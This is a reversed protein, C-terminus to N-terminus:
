RVEVLSLSMRGHQGSTFTQEFTPGAFQVELSAPEGDPEYNMPLIPGNAEIWKARLADMVASPVANWVLVFERLHRDLKQRVRVCGGLDSRVAERKSRRTWTFEPCIDFDIDAM